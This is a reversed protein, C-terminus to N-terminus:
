NLLVEDSEEAEFLLVDNELVPMLRLGLADFLAGEFATFSRFMLFFVSKGLSLDDQEWISSEGPSSLLSPIAQLSVISVALLVFLFLVDLREHLTLGWDGRESHSCFSRNSICASAISFFIM